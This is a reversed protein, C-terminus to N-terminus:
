EAPCVFREDLSRLAACSRAFADEASEMHFTGVGVPVYVPTFEKM